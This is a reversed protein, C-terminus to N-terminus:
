VSWLLGDSSTPAPTAEPRTVGETQPPREPNAGELVRIEHVVKEQRRLGESVLPQDALGTPHPRQFRGRFSTTQDFCRSRVSRKADEHDGLRAATSRAPVHEVQRFPEQRTTALNM